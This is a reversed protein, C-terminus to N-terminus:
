SIPSIEMKFGRRQPIAQYLRVSQDTKQVAQHILKKNEPNMWYGLVIGTLAHPEYPYLKRPGSFELIRWEQEYEWLKSKTLLVAKVFELPGQKQLQLYNFHPYAKPYQVPFALSFSNQHTSFELCFGQHSDAYHSWMLIQTPDASLSCIGVQELHHERVKEDLEDLRKEDRLLPDRVKEEIMEEIQATSLGPFDRPLSKRFYSKWDEVTGDHNFRIRCDFPDNFQNAHAFYILRKIIVSITRENFKYYKYLHPPHNINEFLM